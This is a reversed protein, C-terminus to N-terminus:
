HTGPKYREPYQKPCFFVANNWTHNWDVFIYLVVFTSNTRDSLGSLSTGQLAQSLQL